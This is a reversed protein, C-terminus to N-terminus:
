EQTRTVARRRFALRLRAPPISRITTIRSDPHTVSPGSPSLGSRLLFLLRADLSRVRTVVGSAFEAASTAFTCKRSDLNAALRASQHLLVGAMSKAQRPDDEGQGQGRTGADNHSLGRGERSM